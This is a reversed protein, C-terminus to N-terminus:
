APTFREFATLVGRGSRIKPYKKEATLMGTM